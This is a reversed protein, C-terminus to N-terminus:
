EGGRDGGGGEGGLRRARRELRRERLRGLEERLEEREFPIKHTTEPAPWFDPVSFRTDLNTGFYYMWAIPFMIYMGFQNKPNPPPPTPKHPPPPFPPSPPSRSQLSRPQPRGHHPLHSSQLTLLPPISTTSRASQQIELHPFASSVQNAVCNSRSVSKSAVDSAHQFRIEIRQLVISEKELTVFTITVSFRNCNSIV